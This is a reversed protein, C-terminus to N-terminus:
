GASHVRPQCRRVRATGRRQRHTQSGAVVCVLRASHEVGDISEAESRGRQL